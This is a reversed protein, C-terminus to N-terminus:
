LVLHLVVLFFLAMALYLHFMRKKRSPWYLRLWGFTAVAIITLGAILGITFKPYQWYFGYREIVLWGHFLVIIVATTGTWRHYPIVKKSLNAFRIKQQRSPSERITTFVAHRTWNYFILLAGLGGFLTHWGYSNATLLAWVLVGVAAGNILFWKNM